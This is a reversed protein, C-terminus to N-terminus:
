WNIIPVFSKLDPDYDQRERYRYDIDAVGKYGGEVLLNFRNGVSQGIKYRDPTTPVSFTQVIKNQPQIVIRNIDKIANSGGFSIRLNVDNAVSTGHNAVVIQMEFTQNTESYKCDELSVSLVPRHSELFITQALDIQNAIQRSMRQYVRWTAVTACAIVISSMATIFNTLDRM